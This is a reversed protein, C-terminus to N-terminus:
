FSDLFTSFLNQAQVNQQTLKSFLIHKHLINFSTTLYIIRWQFSHYHISNTLLYVILIHISFLNRMHHHYYM